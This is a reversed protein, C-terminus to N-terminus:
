NMDNTMKPTSDKLPQYCLLVNGSKFVKTKLLNLKLRYDLGKFLTKGKGLIIPNILISFEDILGHPILAVALDSSGFIAIDRGPGLKMRAVERAIDGKFLRTNNWEAKELSKSFVIKSLSNMKGAIMSDNTNVTETPWYGAMLEYTIRGFMLTDVSNLFDIAYENFEDEVNHWDIERAPGEFFGDLSIMNQFIVKRM